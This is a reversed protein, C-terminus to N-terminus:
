SGEYGMVQVVLPNTGRNYALVRDGNNLVLGSREYQVMSQDQELIGDQGLSVIDSKVANVTTNGALQTILVDSIQSSYDYTAGYYDSVTKWEILDDTIWIDYDTDNSGYLVWQSLGIRLSTYRWTNATFQGATQATINAAGLATWGYTADNTVRSLYTPSGTNNEFGARTFRCAYIGASSDRLGVYWSDESPKYEFWAVNGRTIATSTAVGVYDAGTYNIWADDTAPEFNSGIYVYANSPGGDMLWCGNQLRMTQYDSQAASIATSIRQYWISTNGLNGAVLVNDKVFKMSHYGNNNVGITSSTYPDFAQGRNDYSLSSSMQNSARGDANAQNYLRTAATTDYGWMASYWDSLDETGSPTIQHTTSAATRVIYSGHAVAAEYTIPPAYTFDSVTYSESTSAGNFWAANLQTVPGLEIRGVLAPAATDDWNTNKVIYNLYEDQFAASVIATTTKLADTTSDIRFHALTGNPISTAILSVSAEAGSSNTYVAVTDQVAVSAKGLRGNAM